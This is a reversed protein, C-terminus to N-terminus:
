FPSQEPAVNLQKLEWRELPAYPPTNTAATRVVEETTPHIAYVAGPSYFATVNASDVGGPTDIRLFTAGGINAETVYGVIRRHGMMEVVCWEGFSEVDAM